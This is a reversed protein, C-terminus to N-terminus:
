LENLPYIISVNDFFIKFKDMQVLNIQEYYQYNLVGFVGTIGMWGISIILFIFGFKELRDLRVNKVFIEYAFFAYGIIICLTYPTSGAFPLSLPFHTFPFLLVMLFFLYRQYKNVSTTIDKSGIM